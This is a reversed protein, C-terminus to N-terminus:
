EESESRSRDTDCDIEGEDSKQVPPPDESLTSSFSRPILNQGFFPCLKTLCRYASCSTQKRGRPEAIESTDEM